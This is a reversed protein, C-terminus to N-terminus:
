PDLVERVRRLLQDPTFVKPLYQTSDDLDLGSLRPADAYGSMFLVKADPRQARLAAALNPGAVNPMDIDSVLLDLHDLRDAVALAEAGDRAVFVEYGHRRLAGAVLQRLADEDEVVLVRETGALQTADSTAEPPVAPSEGSVRPLLVDLRTGRGPQSHVELFGGSQQVIGYVTSLGLGTGKGKEKTTFFPEFVHQVTFEDMGVGDDEVRIRVMPEARGTAADPTTSLRLRGGDPMADRANVALNAVVQELQGPDARVVLPEDHLDLGLQISGPLLRGLMRAMEQLLVNVDVEEPLLVQRRSFALLQQTLRGARAAAEDIESVPESLEHDPGVVDALYSAVGRIVTLLNNFDHAVGSALRGVAEMKQSQLLQEELRRQDTRDRSTAVFLTEGELEIRRLSIEVPIALGRTDLEISEFVVLGRQMAARLATTAAERQDPHYADLWDRGLPACTALGRRQCAALNCEVVRGEPDLLM